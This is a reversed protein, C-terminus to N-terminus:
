PQQNPANTGIVGSRTHSQKNQVLFRLLRINEPTAEMFPSNTGTTEGYGEFQDHPKLFWIFRKGYVKPGGEFEKKTLWFVSIDKGQLLNSGLFVEDVKLRGGSGGGGAASSHNIGSVVVTSKELGDALARVNSNTTEAQVAYFSVAVLLFTFITKM